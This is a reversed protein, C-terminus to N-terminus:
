KATEPGEFLSAPLKGFNRISDEIEKLRNFMQQEKAAEEKRQLRLYIQALSYRIISSNPDLKKSIELEHVGQEIKGAKILLNGLYYHALSFEPQLNVAEQAITLADSVIGFKYGLYALGIRPRVSRPNLEIEKRFQEIAKENEGLDALFVGFAYRLREATPYRLVMTEYLQKAENIKNGAILYQAQGTQLILSLTEPNITQPLNEPHIPFKLAALGLAKILEEVPNDPSRSLGALLVQAEEFKEHLILIIAQHYLAVDRLELEKSVGLALGRQIHRLSPAYDKLEFDCLGWLIWGAGAKPNLNVLTEFAIRAEGYNKNAYLFTGMAWLGESWSPKLKLGEQLLKIADPIRNESAAIQAKSHIEHLAQDLSITKKSHDKKQAPSVMALWIPIFVLIILKRFKCM